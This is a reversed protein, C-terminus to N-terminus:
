EKPNNIIISLDVPEVPYDDELYIMNKPNNIRVARVCRGYNMVDPIKMYLNDKCMFYDFENIDKFQKASHDRNDTITIM